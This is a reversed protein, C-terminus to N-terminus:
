QSPPAPAPALGRARGGGALPPARHRGLGAAAADGHRAKRRLARRQLGSVERAALPRDADARGGRARAGARPGYQAAAAGAAGGDVGPGAAAAGAPRLAGPGPGGAGDDAQRGAAPQGCGVADVAGREDAGDGKWALPSSLIVSRKLPVFDSLSSVRAYMGSSGVPRPATAPRMCKPTTM